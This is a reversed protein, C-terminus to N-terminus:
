LSVGTKLTTEKLNYVTNNIVREQIEPVVYIKGKGIPSGSFSSVLLFPDSDHFNTVQLFAPDSIKFHGMSEWNVSPEAAAFSAIM